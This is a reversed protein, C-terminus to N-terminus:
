RTPADRSPAKRKPAQKPARRKPPTPRQRPPKKLLDVFLPFEPGSGHAIKTVFWQDKQQQWTQVVVTRRVLGRSVRHWIYRYRLVAQKKKAELTTRLLEVESVNVAEDAAEAHNLYQDRLTPHLHKAAKQHQRWRVGQNFQMANFDLTKSLAQATPACAPGFVVLTALGLLLGKSLPLSLWTCAILRHKM